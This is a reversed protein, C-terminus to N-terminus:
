APQLMERERGAVQYDIKARSSKVWKLATDPVQSAALMQAANIIMTSARPIGEISQDYFLFVAWLSAVFMLLRIIGTTKEDSWEYRKSAAKLFPTVILFTGYLVIGGLIALPADREINAIPFTQTESVSSNSGVLAVNEESLSMEGNDAQALADGHFVFALIAIFIIMVM